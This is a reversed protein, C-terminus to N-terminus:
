ESGLQKYVMKCYTSPDKMVFGCNIQTTQFLLSVTDKLKEEENNELLKRLGKTIGHNPNIEFIKKSLATMAALPNKEAVLQSSMISEM